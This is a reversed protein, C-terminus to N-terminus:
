AIVVGRILAVGKNLYAGYVAATTPGKTVNTILFNTVTDGLDNTISVVQGQLAALSAHWTSIGAPSNFYEAQFQGEGGGLGTLQAGYGDIGPMRWVEVQTALLPKQGRVFDCTVGGVTAM